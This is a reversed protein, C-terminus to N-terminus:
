KGVYSRECKGAKWLKISRDASGTLMLGKEPMIVVSWVAADHGSCFRLLDCEVCSNLSSHSM